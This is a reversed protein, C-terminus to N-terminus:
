DHIFIDDFVGFESGGKIKSVHTTATTIIGFGDKARKIAMKNRSRFNEM